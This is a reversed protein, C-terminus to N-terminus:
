MKSEAMINAWSEQLMDIMGHPYIEIFSIISALCKYRKQTNIKGTSDKSINNTM